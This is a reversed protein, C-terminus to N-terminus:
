NLEYKYITPMGKVSSLLYASSGSIKFKMASEPLEVEGLYNGSERDYFLLRRSHKVKEILEEFNFTYKMQEWKSIKKGSFTIYIYNNDVTIDRAGEPHKGMVPLGYVGSKEDQTPLPINDPGDQIYKVGKEDIAIVHSSFEFAIYLVGNFNTYFLTQMLVFNKLPSLDKYDEFTISWLKEDGFTGDDKIRWASLFNQSNEITFLTSDNILGAQYFRKGKGFSRIDTIYGLSDNYKMIRNSGADWLLFDGNSYKTVRKYFTSTVEGPGRGARLSSVLSDRKFDILGVPSTKIGIDNVLILDKDFVWFDQPNYISNKLQGVIEWQVQNTVLLAAYVTVIGCIIKIIGKM